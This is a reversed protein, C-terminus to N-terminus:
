RKLPVEEWPEINMLCTDPRSGPLLTLRCRYARGAVPHPVISHAECGWRASAQVTLLRRLRGSEIGVEWTGWPADPFRLVSGTALSFDVAAGFDNRRVNGPVRTGAHLIRGHPDIITFDQEDNLTISLQTRPSDAFRAQARASERLRPACTVSGAVIWSVLLMM